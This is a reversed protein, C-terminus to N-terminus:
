APPLLSLDANMRTAVDADLQPGHAFTWGGDRINALTQTLARRAYVVSEDNWLVTTGQDSTHSNTLAEGLLTLCNSADDLVGIAEWKDHRGQTLHDHNISVCRVAQALSAILRGTNELSVVAPSAEAVERKQADDAEKLHDVLDALNVNPLHSRVYTNERIGLAAATSAVLDALVDQATVKSIDLGQRRGEECLREVTEQFKAM